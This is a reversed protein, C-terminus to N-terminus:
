FIGLERLEAFFESPMNEDNDTGTDMPADAVELYRWGQFIRMRTPMVTVIEPSLVIGCAPSGDAREAEVFDVIAQRATMVGRIIWYISGGNLLEEVRRPRNRTIHVLKGVNALRQAQLARLGDVSASGVSLKKLHVTM